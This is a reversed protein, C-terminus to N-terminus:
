TDTLCGVKQIRVQFISTDEGNLDWAKHKDHFRQSISITKMPFIAYQM